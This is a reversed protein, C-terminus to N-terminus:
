KGARAAALAAKAQDLKVAIRASRAAIDKELESKAGVAGGIPKRRQIEKLTVEYLWEGSGGQMQPGVNGYSVTRIKNHVTRLDVLTYRRPPRREKGETLMAVWPEWAEFHEPLWLKIEYVIRTLLEGRDVTFAGAYGPARQDQWDHPRDGGSKIKSLGPSKVGDLTFIDFAEPNTLPTTM